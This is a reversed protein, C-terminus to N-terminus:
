RADLRELQARAEALTLNTRFGPISELKDLTGGTHGLSRGSMMPVAVGLSAILPALVLSM